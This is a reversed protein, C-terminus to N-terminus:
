LGRFYQCALGYDVFVYLEGQKVVEIGRFYQCALGITLLIYRQGKKVIHLVDSTIVQQGASM